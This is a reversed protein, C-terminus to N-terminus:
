RTQYVPHPSAPISRVGWRQQPPLPSCQHWKGMDIARTHAQTWVCFNLRLVTNTEAPISKANEVQRRLYEETITVGLLPNAKIWCSEDALPDDGDDLACVYAFFTDDELAGSAVNQTGFTLLVLGHFIHMCSVFAVLLM